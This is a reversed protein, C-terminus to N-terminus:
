RCKKHSNETTQPGIAKELKRVGRMKDDFSVGVYFSLTTTINSHGLIECVTKENVGQSISETAFTHRLDHFKVPRNFLRYCLTSFRRQLNRPETIKDAKKSLVFLDPSSVIKSLKKHIFSPIPVERYSSESKPSLIVLRTKNKGTEDQIRHVTGSVRISKRRLDVNQWRLACIEGLRLGTNLAILIGVDYLNESKNLETNLRSCERKTLVTVPVRSKHIKRYNTGINNVYGHRIAFNIISKLVCFILSVTNANLIELSEAAFDNILTANIDTIRLKGFYPCLYRDLIIKYREETTIKVTKKKDSFWQKAVEEFSLNEDM